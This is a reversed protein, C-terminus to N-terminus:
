RSWWVLCVIVGLGSGERQVNMAIDLGDARLASLGGTLATRLFIGDVYM